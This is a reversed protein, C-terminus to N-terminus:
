YSNIRLLSHQRSISYSMTQGDGRETATSGFYATSGLGAHTSRHHRFEKLLQQDSTLQAAWWKVM